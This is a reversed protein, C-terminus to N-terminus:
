RKGIKKNKRVPNMKVNKARGELRPPRTLHDRERLIKKKDIIYQNNM